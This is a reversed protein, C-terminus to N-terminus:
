GLFTPMLVAVIIIVVFFSVLVFVEKRGEKYVVIEMQNSQAKKIIASVLMAVIITV